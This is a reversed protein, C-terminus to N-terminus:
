SKVFVGLERCVHQAIEKKTRHLSAVCGNICQGQEDLHFSNKCNCVPRGNAYRQVLLEYEDRPAVM